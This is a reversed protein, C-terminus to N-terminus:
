RERRNEILHHHLAEASPIVKAFVNVVYGLPWLLTKLILMGRGLTLYSSYRSPAESKDFNVDIIDPM